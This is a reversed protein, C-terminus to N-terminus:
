QRVDEICSRRCSFFWQGHVVASVAVLGLFRKFQRLLFSSAVSLFNFFNVM